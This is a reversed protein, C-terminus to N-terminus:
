FVHAGFVVAFQNKKMKKKNWEETYVSKFIINKHLFFFTNTTFVDSNMRVSDFGFVECETEIRIVISINISIVRKM